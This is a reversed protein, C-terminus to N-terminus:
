INLILRQTVTSLPQTTLLIWRLTSEEKEKQGINNLMSQAPKPKNESISETSPPIIGHKIIHQNLNGTSGSYKYNASCKEGNDLVFQCYARVEGKENSKKIYYDWVWSSKIKSSVPMQMFPNSGGDIGDILIQGLSESTTLSSEENASTAKQKGLAKSSKAPRGRKKRVLPVPTSTEVNEDNSHESHESESLYIYNDDKNAM